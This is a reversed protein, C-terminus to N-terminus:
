QQVQITIKNEGAPTTVPIEVNVIYGSVASSQKLTPAESTTPYTLPKEPQLAQELGIFLCSALITELM